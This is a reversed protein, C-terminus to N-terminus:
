DSYSVKPVYLLPGGDAAERGHLQAVVLWALVKKAECTADM